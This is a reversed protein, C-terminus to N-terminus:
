YARAFIVSRTTPQGTLVCRGGGGPQDFPICRITAKTEQKIQEEQAADGAWWVRVFGGDDLMQKLQHYDSAEFTNASRFELARRM